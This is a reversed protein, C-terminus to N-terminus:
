PDSPRSPASPKDDPAEDPSPFLRDELEKAMLDRIQTKLARKECNTMKPMKLGTDAKCAYVLLAPRVASKGRLM